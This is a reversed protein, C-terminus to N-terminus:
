EAGAVGWLEAQRPEPRARRPSRRRGTENAAATPTAAPADPAEFAIEAQAPAVAVAEVPAAAVGEVPAPLAVAVPEAREEVVFPKPTEGMAVACAWPYRTEGADNAQVYVVRAVM